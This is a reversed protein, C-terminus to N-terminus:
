LRVRAALFDLFVRVRAPLHGGQGVYVAHIAEIDGPNQAKLVEVLRGARIDKGVHFEGLRAIGLGAMAMRRMTEGDSGLAMARPTWSVIAGDRGRFPWTRVQRHFNFALCDHGALDEVRKPAGRRAIYDPSAVTLIRSEGLKRAMLRSEKLPGVRIAVDAREAVLDVVMDTLVLDIVIEPYLARFAPLLPILTQHGFPLNSNIRLRGRPSAGATAEREAEDIEGLIRNVRELFAAGEPTLQIRRTSRTLLRTGLRAELRAVLKSVGSPTMGLARAAASFSGAEVTRAFVEMEGSRNTEAPM